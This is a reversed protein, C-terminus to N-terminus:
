ELTLIDAIQNCVDIFEKVTMVTDEIVITKFPQKETHKQTEEKKKHCENLCRKSCHPSCVEKSEKEIKKYDEKIKNYNDKIWSYNKNDCMSATMKKITKEKEKDTVFRVLEWFNNFIYENNPVWPTNEEKYNKYRFNKYLYSRTMKSGEDPTQIRIVIAKNWSQIRIGYENNDTTDKEREILKDLAQGFSLYHEVIDYNCNASTTPKEYMDVM